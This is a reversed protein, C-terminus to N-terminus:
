SKPRSPVSLPAHGPQAAPAAAPASAPARPRLADLLATYDNIGATMAEAIQEQFEPSAIRRAEADNSLFASEILVGPCQLPRLVGYHQIKEGRDVTHLRQMLERHLQNAFIVNWDDQGNAPSAFAESNGHHTSWSDASSQYEPTFTFIETGSTRTDHEVANFHISIFLDAHALNAIAARRQLDAVKGPLLQRDDTRTLVVQDGQAALLKRLRLAVELTYTKENMRLRLNQFGPDSGGHGPDIAIVHPRRPPPGCREPRLLPTLRRIFDIRSVYLEGSREVTPDGLFVRLGNDVVERGDPEFAVRHARDTLTFTRGVLSSGEKMGFSTAVSGLSVYDIGSAKIAAPAARTCGATSCLLAALAALRLAGPLM